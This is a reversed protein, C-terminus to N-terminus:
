PRVGGTVLAAYNAILARASVAVQTIPKVVDLADIEGKNQTEREFMVIIEDIPLEKNELFLEIFKKPQKAYYTDFVAKLRPISKLAVSNRLAGPKKRLTNLYHYIDIQMAGNGFLRKHVAVLENAAYVRIENHYKKVTVRKGVLYEPV